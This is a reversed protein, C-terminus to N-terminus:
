VRLRYILLVIHVDRGWEWSVKQWPVHADLFMIRVPCCSSFTAVAELVKELVDLDISFLCVLTAQMGKKLAVKCNTLGAM